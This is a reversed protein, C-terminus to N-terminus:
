WKYIINNDYYSLFYNTNVKIGINWGTCFNDRTKYCSKTKKEQTSYLYFFYKDGSFNLQAFIHKKQRWYYM